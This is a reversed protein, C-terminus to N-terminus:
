ASQHGRHEELAELQQRYIPYDVFIGDVRISASGQAEAEEFASVIAEARALETPGLLSVTRHVPEVQEPHIVVRGRLGLAKSRATDAALADPDGLRLYPGDLPAPLGAARAAMVVTSRALLLELGDESPEVGIDASFDGLGFVLQRLRGPAHDAIEAARQVGRATELLAFLGISGPELDAAREHEALQADVIRLLEASEVKPVVVADLGPAVAAQLDDFLLGTDVGNVRVCWLGPNPVALAPALFARAAVKEDDAVADELDLVTADAGCSPLKAVRREHNAPAFLLTRVPKSM